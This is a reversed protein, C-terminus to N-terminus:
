FGLDITSLGAASTAIDTNGVDPPVTVHRPIDIKKGAVGTPRTLVEAYYASEKYLIFDCITLRWSNVYTM